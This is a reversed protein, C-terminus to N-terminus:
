WGPREKGKLRSCGALQEGGGPPVKEDPIEQKAAAAGPAERRQTKTEGGWGGTKRVKM